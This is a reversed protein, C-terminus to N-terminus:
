YNRVIRARSPIYGSIYEPPVTGVQFDNSNHPLTKILRNVFDSDVTSKVYIDRYQFDPGLTIREVPANTISQVESPMINEIAIPARSEAVELDMTLIPSNEIVSESDSESKDNSCYAYIHHDACKNMCCENVIGRRVRRAKTYTMVGGRSSCIRDVREVLDRGCTKRMALGFTRTPQAQLSPLLVFLVLILLLERSFASLICKEFNRCFCISDNNFDFLKEFPYKFIEIGSKIRFSAHSM